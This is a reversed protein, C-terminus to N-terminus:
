AVELATTGGRTRPSIAAEAVLVRVVKGCPDSSLIRVTGADGDVEITQGDKIVQTAIRPARVIEHRQGSRTSSRYVRECRSDAGVSPRQNDGADM